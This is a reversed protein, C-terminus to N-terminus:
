RVLFRFLVRWCLSLTSVDLTSVAGAAKGSAIDIRRLAVDVVNLRIVVLIGFFTALGFRGVEM